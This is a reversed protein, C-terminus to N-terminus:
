PSCTKAMCYFSGVVLLFTTWIYGNKLRPPSPPRWLNLTWTSYRTRQTGCQTWSIGPNKVMNLELWIRGSDNESVIVRYVKRKKEQKWYLWVPVTAQEKTLQPSITLHFRGCVRSLSQHHLFCSRRDNLFVYILCM